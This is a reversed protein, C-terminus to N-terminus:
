HCQQSYYEHRIVIIYLSGERVVRDSSHICFTIILGLLPESVGIVFSYRNFDAIIILTSTHLLTHFPRPYLASLHFPWFPFHFPVFPCSTSLIRTRGFRPELDSRLRMACQRCDRQETPARQGISDSPKIM